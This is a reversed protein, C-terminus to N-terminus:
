SMRGTSEQQSATEDSIFAVTFYGFCSSLSNVLSTFVRTRYVCNQNTVVFYICRVFNPKCNKLVQVEDCPERFYIEM